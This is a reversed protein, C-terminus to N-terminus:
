PAGVALEARILQDIRTLGEALARHNSLCSLVFSCPFPLGYLAGPQLRVGEEVLKRCWAEESMVSPFRLILSWGARSDLVTLPHDRLTKKVLSQSRRVHENIRMRVAEARKLISPLGLQVLQNVSLYADSIYELEDLLGVAGQGRACIWGLKLGPAGALKSLGNLVIVLSTSEIVESLPDVDDQVPTLIYPQFVEDVVLPLGLAQLQRLEARQLVHGTPNHPSIALVFRIKQEEISVASPLSGPDIYWQGDYALRYEVLRVGCLQAIDQLLPYGPSPVLVADGPDCFTLLLFSYAESTSATLLLQEAEISARPSLFSALAKRADLRGRAEPEYAVQPLSGLWHTSLHAVGARHPQTETLNIEPRKAKWLPTEKREFRARKSLYGPFNPKEAM